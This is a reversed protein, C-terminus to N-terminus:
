LAFPLLLMSRLAHAYRVAYCCAAMVNVIVAHVTEFRATCGGGKTYRHLQHFVTISAHLLCTCAGKTHATNNLKAVHEWALGM